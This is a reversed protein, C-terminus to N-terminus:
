KNRSKLLNLSLPKLIHLLCQCLSVVMRLYLIIISNDSTYVYICYKVKTLKLLFTLLPSYSKKVTFQVITTAFLLM